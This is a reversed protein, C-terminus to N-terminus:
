ESLLKKLEQTMQPVISFMDGVIGYDCNQFIPAEPDSNIAVIVKSTRMGALHQIAGSIGCAIYLKPNVTKGTQGVQMSHPAFGADVAARSAGVAAGLVDALEQIMAFNEASKISRGASVIVEAESLDLKETKGKVVERLRAKPPQPDVKLDTVKPEAGSKKTTEFVNPRCSLLKVGGGQFAVKVLAKGSYVPRRAVIAGNEIAVSTCDSAMGTNLKVALRPLFDRGVSSATVLFVEADMAKIARESVQTYMEPSYTNFLDHEAKYIESVGYDKLQEALGTGAHTIVLAGLQGGLGTAIRSGESLLELSAKKVKGEKVEVLVLVNKAM